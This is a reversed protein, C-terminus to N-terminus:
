PYALETAPLGGSYFERYLLGNSRDKKINGPPEWLTDPSATTATWVDLFAGSANSTTVIARQGIASAVVVALTYLNGAVVCAVIKNGDASSAVGGWNRSADRATWTAGSDTSTYIFGGNVAAALKTGDASSAVGGWNRSADRATWTVGSDTSTYLFGGNVAAALKTGDASSAVGVWNRSADRATWTVGSDASIYLFGGESFAVIKNGDASSAVGRWNRAADRATWTVGSDTSTYLFGGYTGAVLKTGDASSAVAQWNRSADRATWTVGSDASTYLFGNVVSAVLKAGDASSAVGRWSRVTARQSWTVGSDTSTYLNGNLVSAILKTGDASSAVFNWDRVSDRATFRDTYGVPPATLALATSPITALLTELTVYVPGGPSIVPASSIVADLVACDAQLITWTTADSIDYIEIELKASTQSAGNLLEVIGATNTNLLGSKGKPAVLNTVDMTMAGIDGLTVDFSCVFAPFEGSVAVKGVGVTSLLELAAQVTSADADWNIGLTQESGIKLTYFGAYPLVAFEYSLIAGASVSGQRIVLISSAAVPFDATLEAYAAPLSELRIVIVERVSVAGETAVFIGASASPYLASAECAMATRNGNTNFVVRIVGSTSKTVTVGGAATISTLANLAVEIDTATANFWLSATTNGGYSLAFAGGTPSDVPNGIALRVTKGTLDFDSWPNVGNNYARIMPRFSIPISDGIVFRPMPAQSTSLFSQVLRGQDVDTFLILESAAM